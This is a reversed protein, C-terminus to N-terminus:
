LKEQPIKLVVMDLHIKAGFIWIRYIVEESIHFTVFEFHIYNMILVSTQSLSFMGWSQFWLFITKHSVQFLLCLRQVEGVDAESLQYYLLCCLILWNWISVWSQRKKFFRTLSWKQLLPLWAKMSLWQIKLEGNAFRYLRTLYVQWSLM